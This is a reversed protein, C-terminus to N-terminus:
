TDAMRTPSPQRPSTTADGACRACNRGANKAAYLAHDAAVVLSLAADADRPFCAVGISTTVRLIPGAPLPINNEAVLTLVRHAMPLVADATIDPLIIIFEEGGYRALVDGPRIKQQLLHVTSRLVADGAPHGHTDNVVKFHDLDLLMLCLSRGHRQARSLEIDLLRQFERRTIAGTLGDHTSLALLSEQTRELNTAMINFAAALRGLEDEATVVVRAGRDGAALRTVGRDLHRLPVLISHLLLLATFVSITLGAAFTGALMFKDRRLTAHAHDRQEAIEQLASGHVQDVKDAATYIYSDMREMIRAASPNTRPYPLALLQQALRQGQRWAANAQTMLSRQRDRLSPRRLFAAFAEDVQGQLREFKAREEHKGTILYDNPPMSARLLLNQLWLSEHMEAAADDALSDFADVVDRLSLYSVGALILLPILVTTIGLVFRTRLSTKWPWSSTVKLKELV